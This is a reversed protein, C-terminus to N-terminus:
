KCETAIRPLKALEGLGLKELDKAQQVLKDNRSTSGRKRWYTRAVTRMVSNRQNAYLSRLADITTQRDVRACYVPAEPCTKVVSPFQITLSGALERYRDAKKKSRLADRTDRKRQSTTTTASSDSTSKLAASARTMIKSLEDAIKDLNGTINETSTNTCGGDCTPLNSSVVTSSGNLQWTLQLAPDSVIVEFASKNLGPAFRTPQGLSETGPTFRNLAGVPIVQEFANPNNYSM